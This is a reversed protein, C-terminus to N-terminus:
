DRPTSGGIGKITRPPIARLEFFDSADPSIHITAGSDLIFPGTDSSLKTHSNSNISSALFADTTVSKRRVRWDVSASHDELFLADYEFHDAASMSTYWERPFSDAAVAALATDSSSPPKNDSALLIAQNTESDVIYARGSQDRRIANSPASKNNRDERAKAKAALVEDRKGEMGGGKTFCTDITHGSKACNPNSCVKPSKKFPKGSRAVLATESTGERRTKYVTEQEIRSSLAAATTTTNSIYHSTMESRIHDAERELANLMAVMFLVNFTPVTQSFIHTCLDRLRDTTAAWASVDKPYYISLLEQILHVQTIPGQKEHRDRLSTWVTHANDMALFSKEGDEVHAKLFGILKKNNGKWNRLSVANTTTDPIPVTGALYDDLESMEMVEFIKQSWKPWNDKLLCLSSFKNNNTLTSFMRNSITLAVIPIPTTQLAVTTVAPNVSNNSPGTPMQNTSSPAVPPPPAM